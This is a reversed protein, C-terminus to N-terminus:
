KALPKTILRYGLGRVTQLFASRNDVVGTKLMENLMLVVTSEQVDPGHVQLFPLQAAEESGGQSTYIMYRKIEIIVSHFKSTLISNDQSSAQWPRGLKQTMVLYGRGYKATLESWGIAVVVMQFANINEGAASEGCHHVLDVEFHGPEYMGGPIKRM